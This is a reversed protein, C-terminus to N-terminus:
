YKQYSPFVQYNLKFDGCKFENEWETFHKRAVNCIRPVDHAYVERLVSSILDLSLVHFLSRIIALFAVRFGFSLSGM